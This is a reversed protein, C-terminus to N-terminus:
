NQIRLRSGTCSSGYKEIAKIMAEKVEPHNVLGVYNNSGAMIM